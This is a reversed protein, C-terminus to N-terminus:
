HNNAEKSLSGVRWVNIKFTVGKQKWITCIISSYSISNRKTSIQEWKAM